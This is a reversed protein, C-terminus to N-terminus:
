LGLLSLVAWCGILLMELALAVLGCRLMKTKAALLGKNTQYTSLVLGRHWHEFKDPPLHKKKDLAERTLPQRFDKPFLCRWASMLIVLFALAAAFVAALSVTFEIHEKAMGATASGVTAAIVGIVVSGAALVGVMKTDVSRGAHIIEYPSERSWEDVLKQTGPHVKQKM